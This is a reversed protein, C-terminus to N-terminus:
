YVCSFNDKKKKLNHSCFGMVCNQFVAFAVCYVQVTSHNLMLFRILLRSLIMTRVQILVFDALGLPCPRCRALLSLRPRWHFVILLIGLSLVAMLHCLWARWRVWKYGQANQHTAFFYFNKFFPFPPFFSHLSWTPYWYQYLFICKNCWFPQNFFFFGDIKQVAQTKRVLLIRKPFFTNTSKNKLM